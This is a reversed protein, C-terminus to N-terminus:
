DAYAKAQNAKRDAERKTQNDDMKQQMAKKNANMEALIAKLFEMNEMKKELPVTFYTRQGIIV